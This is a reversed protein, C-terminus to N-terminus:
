ISKSNLKRLIIKRWSNLNIFGGIYHFRFHIIPKSYVCLTELCEKLHLFVWDLMTSCEWLWLYSWFPLYISGFFCFNSLFKGNSKLFYIKLILIHYYCALIKKFLTKSDACCSAESFTCNVPNCFLIDSGHM